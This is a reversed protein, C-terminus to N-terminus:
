RAWHFLWQEIGSTWRSALLLRAGRPGPPTRQSIRQPTAISPPGTQSAHSATRLQPLGRAANFYRRTQHAVAGVPHMAATQRSPRLPVINRAVRQRQRGRRPQPSSFISSAIATRGPAGGVKRESSRGDHRPTLWASIHRTGQIQNTHLAEFNHLVFLEVNFANSCTV